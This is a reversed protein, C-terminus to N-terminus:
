YFPLCLWCSGNRHATAGKLKKLAAYM